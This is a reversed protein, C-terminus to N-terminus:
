QLRPKNKSYYLQIAFCRDPSFSELREDLNRRRFYTAVEIGSRHYGDTLRFESQRQRKREIVFLSDNTRQKKNNINEARKNTADSLQENLSRPRIIYRLM